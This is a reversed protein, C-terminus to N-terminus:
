KGAAPEQGLLPLLIQGSSDVQVTRNLDNLQFVDIELTDQPGIKYDSAAPAATAAQERLAAAALAQAHVGTAMMPATLVLAGVAAVVGRGNMGIDGLTNSLKM